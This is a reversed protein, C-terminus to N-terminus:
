ELCCVVVIIIHIFMSIMLFHFSLMTLAILMLGLITSSTLCIDSLAIFQLYNVLTCMLSTVTPSHSLCSRYRCQCSGPFYHSLPTASYPVCRYSTWWCIVLISATISKCVSSAVLANIARDNQRDTQRDRQSKPGWGFGTYM